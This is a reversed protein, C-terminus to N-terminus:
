QYLMYWIWFVCSLLWKKFYRFFIM